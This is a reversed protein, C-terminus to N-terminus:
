ERGRFRTLNAVPVVGTYLGNTVWVEQLGLRAALGRFLPVDSTSPSPVGLTPKGDPTTAPHNHLVAWYQWGEAVDGAVEAFGYFSKPPFMTDSAGLYVKLRDNKRLIHAVFETPQTLQSYRADQFAFLAAELCRVPRVEGGGSYFLAYNYQEDHVIEREAEDKPPSLHLIAKPNDTGVARIASRYAQYGAVDPTTESLWVSAPPLDWVHMAANGDRRLVTAQPLACAAGAVTQSLVVVPRAYDIAAVLLFLLGVRILRPNM